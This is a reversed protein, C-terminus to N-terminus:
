PLTFGTPHIVYDTHIQLFKITTNHQQFSQKWCTPNYSTMVSTIIFKYFVTNHQQFSQKWCTPNYSTM